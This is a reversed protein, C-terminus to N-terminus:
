FGHGIIRQQAMLNHGLKIFKLFLIILLLPIVFGAFRKNVFPSYLYAYCYLVAKCVFAKGLKRSCVRTVRARPSDGPRVWKPVPRKLCKQFLRGRKEGCSQVWKPVPRKLCKQFLRGRKEGCSKNQHRNYPKIVNSFIRSTGSQYQLLAEPSFDNIWM